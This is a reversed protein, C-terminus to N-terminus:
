EIVQGNRWRIVANMWVDKYKKNRILKYGKINGEGKMIDFIFRIRGGDEFDYVWLETNENRFVQRPNGFIQYLMGKDTKWGAQDSTFMYGADKIRRFYHKIFTSAIDAKNTVTGFVFNEFEKQADTAERIGNYESSTTIYILPQYMRKYEGYRPFFKNTVLIGTTKSKDSSDNIRYFGENNFDFDENNTSGYITDIAIVTPDGPKTDDFPPMAVAKNDIQGNIEFSGQNEFVNKIKVTTGVNVHNKFLPLVGTKDFILFPNNTFKPNTSIPIDYFYKKKRVVNEIEIVVLNDTDKKELDIEYFFERNANGIIFSSDLRISSGSKKESVYNERIDFRVNYDSIKVMGSNLSFKLYIKVQDNSQALRHDIIFEHDADYLYSLEASSMRNQSSLATCVSILATLIIYRIM